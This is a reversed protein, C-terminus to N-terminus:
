IVFKVICVGSCERKTNVLTLAESIAGVALLGGWEAVYLMSLAFEPTQASSSSKTLIELM